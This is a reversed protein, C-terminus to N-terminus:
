NMHNFGIKGLRMSGQNLHICSNGFLPVDVTELNNLFKTKNVISRKSVLIHPELSFVKDRERTLFFTCSLQEHSRFM